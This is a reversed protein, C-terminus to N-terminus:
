KGNIKGGSKKNKPNYLTCWKVNCILGAEPKIITCRQKDSDWFRCRKAQQNNRTLVIPKNM